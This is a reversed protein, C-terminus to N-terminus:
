LSLYKITELKKGTRFRLVTIDTKLRPGRVSLGSGREVLRELSLGVKEPLGDIARWREDGDEIFQVIWDSTNNDKGYKAPFM